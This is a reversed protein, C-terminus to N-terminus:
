GHLLLAHDWGVRSNSRRREDVAVGDENGDEDGAEGAEADDVLPSRMSQLGQELMVRGVVLVAGRKPSGAEDVMRRRRKMNKEIGDAEM